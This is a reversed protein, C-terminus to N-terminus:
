PAAIEPERAVVGRAVDFVLQREMELGRDVLEDGAAHRDLIRAGRGPCLKSIEFLDASRQVGQAVLPLSVHRARVQDVRQLLVHHEPKPLQALTGGEGQHGYERKSEADTRVA